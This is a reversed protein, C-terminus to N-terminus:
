DVFKVKTSINIIDDVKLNKISQRIDEPLFYHINEKYFINSHEISRIWEEKPIVNKKGMGTMAGVICLDIGLLNMESMDGCLPEFSIFKYNPKQKLYNIREQNPYDITTGLWCNKSFEFELYRKPNKTLFQFTHQQNDKAVKIVSDIWQKPVWDGFLDGMNVVFIRSAKQKEYPEILRKPFFKPEYNPNDKYHFKAAPKGYCYWCKKKCGVVPNWTYDTWDIKGESQKNM